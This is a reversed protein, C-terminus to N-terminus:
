NYEIITNFTSKGQTEAVVSWILVHNVEFTQTLYILGSLLM